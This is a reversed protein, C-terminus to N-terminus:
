EYNYVEKHITREITAFDQSENLNGYAMLLMPLCEDGHRYPPQMYEHEWLAFGQREYFKIRRQAMEETPCEVELVIPLHLLQKLNELIEKGYGRNRMEPHTAFHEVYCFRGFDWYTILGVFTGNDYILNNHFIHKRKTLTRLEQLERYEEKPFASTLLKEMLRYENTDANQIRRIEINMM